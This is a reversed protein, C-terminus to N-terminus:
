PAAQALEDLMEGPGAAAELMSDFFPDDSAEPSGSDDRMALERVRVLRGTYSLMAQGHEAHRVYATAATGRVFQLEWGASELEGLKARQVLTLRSRLEAPEMPRCRRRDYILM